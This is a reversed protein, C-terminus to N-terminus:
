EFILVSDFLNCLFWRMNCLLRSLVMPFTEYFAQLLKEYLHLFAPLLMANQNHRSSFSRILFPSTGSRKLFLGYIIRCFSVSARQNFFFPRLYKSFVFHFCSYMFFSAPIRCEGFPLLRVISFFRFYPCPHFMYKTKHCSNQFSIM